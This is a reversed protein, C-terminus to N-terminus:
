CETVAVAPEPGARAGVSRHESADATNSVCLDTSRQRLFVFGFGFSITCVIPQDAHKIYKGGVKGSDQVTM